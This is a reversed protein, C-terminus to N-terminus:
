FQQYEDVNLSLIKRSRFEELIDSISIRNHFRENGLLLLFYVINKVSIERSYKTIRNRRFNLQTYYIHICTRHYKQKNIHVVYIHNKFLLHVCQLM